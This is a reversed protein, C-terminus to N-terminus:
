NKQGADILNKREYELVLLEGALGLKRNQIDMKSYDPKRRIKFSTNKEQSTRKSDPISTQTLGKPKIEPIVSTNQAPEIVLKNNSRFDEWDLLQWQFYVPKEQQLDHTLYGLRGMYQYPQNKETRM